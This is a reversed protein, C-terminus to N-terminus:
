ELIKIIENAKVQSRIKDYRMVQELSASIM